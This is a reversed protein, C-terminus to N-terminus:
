AKRHERYSLRAQTTDHTGKTPQNGTTADKGSGQEQCIWREGWPAATTRAKKQMQEWIQMDERARNPLSPVINHLNQTKRQRHLAPEQQHPISM